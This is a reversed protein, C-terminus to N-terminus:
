RLFTFEKLGIANNGKFRFYLSDVGDPINFRGEYITWEDGGDVKITGLVDGKTDTLVEICGDGYGNVTVALGHVDKFDFYKFGVICGDHINTIYSEPFGVYEAEQVIKPQDDALWGIWPIAANGSVAYLNCAIYAPYTGQSRLPAINCCSTMMVQPIKVDASISIKEVCAQRSYNTGNTHRHYFIYWEDGVREISGHNNAWGAAAKGADKYTDIGLDANSIIVGGYVFPGAPTDAVAYCLENGKVSSYIFVYKGNVKRISSAEFIEHGKYGKLVEDGAELWKLTRSTPAATGQVSQASPVVFVPEEVITLMDKDLVSMMSGHRNNDEAPCFGTYLYTVDGETLVGPDFQMEDEPKDGLLVGDSHKVFGWFKYRGAPRDCVAVSVHNRHNVSYFLYYRGDPGQTVDPAFIEGVNELNDPDDIKRYIVGEYRWDGLNDIPASYCVYDLLCYVDGGFKDHSGFIYVRDGFVHPEGDPVHEYSPLYPNLAQSLNPNASNLVFEEVQSMIKVMNSADTVVDGTELSHDADATINLQMDAAECGALIDTTAAWPDNTGHFACADLYDYEFTQKVPTFLVFRAKINCQKVYAGAVATGVSKAVFLIDDYGTWNIDKLAEITQALASQACEKMKDPNGKVDNPFGGYNVCVTEYGNHMCMKRAYHLLPKDCTYGIGPLFIAIKSM